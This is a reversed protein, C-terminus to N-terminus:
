RAGSINVYKFADSLKLTTEDPCDKEGNYLVYFEPTPITVLNARYIARNDIIKEYVRAIYILARLPMNKTPTAQHEIFIVLKGGIIFSIDNSRDLFLVNELTTFSLGDSVTFRSDTLANYLELAREADHFLNKFVSNKYERNAASMTSEESLHLISM